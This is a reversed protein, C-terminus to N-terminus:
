AGETKDKIKTAYKAKWPMFYSSDCDDSQTIRLVPIGMVLPLQSQLCDKLGQGLKCHHPYKWPIEPLPHLLQLHHEFEYSPVGLDQKLHLHEIKLGQLSTTMEVHHLPHAPM